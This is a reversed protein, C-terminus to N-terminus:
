ITKLKWDSNKHENNVEINKVITCYSRYEHVEVEKMMSLIFDSNDQQLLMDKLTYSGNKEQNEAFVMPGYHNLTGDFHRDIEQIHHKSRTLYIHPNNAVECPSHVLYIDACSQHECKPLGAINDQM